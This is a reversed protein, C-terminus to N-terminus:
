RATTEKDAALLAQIRANLEAIWECAEREREPEVWGALMESPEESYRSRDFQRFIIAFGAHGTAETDLERMYFRASDSLKGWMGFGWRPTHHDIAVQGIYLADGSDVLGEIKFVSVPETRFFVRLDEDTIPPM